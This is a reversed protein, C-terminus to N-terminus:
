ERRSALRIAIVILAVLGPGVMGAVIGGVAVVLLLLVGLVAGIVGGYIRLV